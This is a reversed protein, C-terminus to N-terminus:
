FQRELKGQRRGMPREVWYTPANADRAIPNKGLM